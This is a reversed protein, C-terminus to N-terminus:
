FSSGTIRFTEGNNTNFIQAVNNIDRHDRCFLVYEFTANLGPVSVEARWIERNGEFRQFRALGERPTAWFDATYTLGAVHAPGKNRVAFDVTLQTSQGGRNAVNTAAHSLFDIGIATRM